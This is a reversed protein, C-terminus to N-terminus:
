RGLVLDIGRLVQTLSQGSLRGIPVSLDARDVTVIRSVNAVSDKDLSTEGAGLPVNGPAGARSLNSTLAVCVATSIRSRNFEDGQVIVVPRHFGPGSGSSAPLNAWCVDGQRIM